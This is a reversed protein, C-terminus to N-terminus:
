DVPLARLVHLLQVSSVGSLLSGDPESKYDRWCRGLTSEVNTKERFKCQM